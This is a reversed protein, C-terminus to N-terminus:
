EITARGSDGDLTVTRTRDGSQVLVSGGSDPHGFGDFVIEADGGFNVSVIIAKYPDDELAVTTISDSYQHTAIDFVITTSSSAFRAHRRAYALDAAIRRAAAEVRHNALSAGYRPIAIGGVIAILTMVIVLELM